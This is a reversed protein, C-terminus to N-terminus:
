KAPAPAPAAKKEAAAAPATAPKEPAPKAECAEAEPACPGPKGKCFGPGRKWEPKMGGHRFGHKKMGFKGHGHHPMGGHRFGHRKMGFKGRGHHPMDGEDMEPMPVNMVPVLMYRPTPYYGDSCGSCYIKCLGTGFHYLAVVIVATLLAIMFTRLDNNKRCEPVANEKKEEM